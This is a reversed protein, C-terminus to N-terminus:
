ITGKKPMYDLSATKNMCMFLIKLIVNIMRTLFVSIVEINLRLLTDLNYYTM